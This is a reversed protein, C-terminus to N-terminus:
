LRLRVDDAEMEEDIIKMIYVEGKKWPQKSMERYSERAKRDRSDKHPFWVASSVREFEKFKIADFAASSKIVTQEGLNGLKMAKSLSSLSISNNLFDQAYMFYSDDARYGKIVDFSQYKPLFHDLMYKKAEVAFDSHLDFVRNDLLIALWNLVSYEKACLDLTKLGTMNLEYSNAYGDRGEGVSWERAMNIDETCYFGQGYDNYIKGKNLQPKSVIEVSGHYLKM